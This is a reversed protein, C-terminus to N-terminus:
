FTLPYTIISIFRRQRPVGCVVRLIRVWRRVAKLAAPTLHGLRGKLVGAPVQDVNPGRPRPRQRQDPHRQPRRCVIRHRCKTRSRVVSKARDTTRSHRPDTNPTPERPSRKSRGIALCVFVLLRPRHRFGAELEHPPEVAQM